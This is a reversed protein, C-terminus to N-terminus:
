GLFFDYLDGYTWENDTWYGIIDKSKLLRGQGQRLTNAESVAYEQWIPSFSTLFIIVM